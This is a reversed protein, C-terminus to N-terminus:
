SILLVIAPFIVESAQNLGTEFYFSEIDRIVFDRTLGEFADHGVQCAGLCEFKKLEPVILEVRRVDVVESCFELSGVVLTQKIHLQGALLYLLLADVGQLGNQLGVSASIWNGFVLQHYSAAGKDILSLVTLSGVYVWHVQAFHIGNVVKRFLVHHPVQFIDQVLVPLVGGLQLDPQFLLQLIQYLPLLHVRPFQLVQLVLAVLQHDLIPVDFELQVPGSGFMLLHLPVLVQVHPLVVFFQSLGVLFELLQFLLVQLNLFAHLLLV